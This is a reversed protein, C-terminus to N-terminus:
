KGICFHSFINTLIDQSSIQGTISSLHHITERLDQAIFDGPINQIVGNIVRETATAAQRLAEAHRINTVLIESGTNQENHLAHETLRHKVNDIGQGTGASIELINDANIFPLATLEARRSAIIGPATIDTKNILPLIQSCDTNHLTDTIESSLAEQPDIVLLIISASGIAKRSREIGIQEIADTTHRLGATDIFRFRYNGIEITEEITDRTTGHIDSVIARDDNLLMNLLSSKGANTAGIIAVPIGEKLAAGTAFSNSLRTVETHIEKALDLLKVRSAFEVDEESFDLELELLSSLDVLKDRLQIIKKSFGGRMQKMAIRHAARSDSAIIDAVAEAQALDLRGSAFARRSFEGPDAMRAGHRLLLSLLERQVYISGHVSLEVVNEGTYSAPAIFLTAVAEDLVENTDPDVITGFHATHTACDTLKKGHWIKDTITLAEPGSIRIVAIGGVGHPTSIACITDTHLSSNETM